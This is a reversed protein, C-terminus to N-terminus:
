LEIKVSRLTSNSFDLENQKASLMTKLNNIELILTAQSKEVLISPDRPTTRDSNM